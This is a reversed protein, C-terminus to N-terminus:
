REGRLQMRIVSEMHTQGGHGRLCVRRNELFMQAPEDEVRCKRRDNLVRLQLKRREGCMESRAQEFREM